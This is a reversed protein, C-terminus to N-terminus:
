TPHPSGFEDRAADAASGVVSKMKEALTAQADGDSLGQRDGENRAAEVAAQASTSLNQTAAHMKREGAEVLDDRAAGFTRDEVVTSPFAAGLAVGVALGAYAFRLGLGHRPVKVRNSLFEPRFRLLLRFRDGTGFLAVASGRNV